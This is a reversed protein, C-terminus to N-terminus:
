LLHVLIIAVILLSFLTHPDTRRVPVIIHFLLTNVQCSVHLPLLPGLQLVRPVYHFLRHERKSAWIALCLSVVSFGGLRHVQFHRNLFRGEDLLKIVVRPCRVRALFGHLDISLSQGILIFREGLDLLMDAAQLIAGLM